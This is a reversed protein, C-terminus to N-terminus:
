CIHKNPIYKKLYYFLNCQNFFNGINNVFNFDTGYNLFHYQFIEVYLCTKLFDLVTKLYHYNHCNRQAKQVDNLPQNSIACLHAM